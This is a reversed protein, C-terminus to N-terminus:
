QSIIVGLGTIGTVAQEAGWSCTQAATAVTGGTCTVWDAPTCTSTLNSTCSFNVYFNEGAALPARDLTFSVSNALLPNTVNLGYTVASLNFGTANNSGAGSDSAPVSNTNTFAYAGIALGVILAALGAGSFLKFLRSM